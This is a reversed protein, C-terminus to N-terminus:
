QAGFHMRVVNSLRGNVTMAVDVEGADALWDPVEFTVQDRGVDDMAGFGLVPVSKGGVTVRVEAGAGAYRFGSGALRVTTRVKPSLMVAVARCVYGSCASTSFSRTQGTGSDRQSVDGVAAGRADASASFFGPAIDALIVKAASVSGDTRVVAVEAPGPASAAPVVFTINSWGAGTYQLGARRAVGRSDTVRVAINSLRLPLAAGAPATAERDALIPGYATSIGGRALVMGGNVHNVPFLGHPDVGWLHAALVMAIGGHSPSEGCTWGDDLKSWNFYRYETLMRGPRYSSLIWSIQHADFYGLHDQLLQTAAGPDHPFAACEASDQDLQPDLDNVMVAVREALAGFQERRAEATRMSAYRPTASYIVNGDRVQFGAAMGAFGGAGNGPLLVPQAVGQARIADVVAQMERQWQAWEGGRGSPAFFVGSFDKFTAACLPWFEAGEEAASLIVLLEFHNAARVVDVARARYATNEVFARADLPLRVANMNLRQRISVLSSPSFAGFERGDGAIDVVNMTLEPLETGRALYARGDADVIRNGSVRYPGKVAPTLQAAHAASLCCLSVVLSRPFHM